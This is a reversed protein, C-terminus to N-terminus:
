KVTYRQSGGISDLIKQSVSSVESRFPFSLTHEEPSEILKVRGLLPCTSITLHIPFREQEQFAQLIGPHVHQRHGGHTFPCSLILIKGVHSCLHIVVLTQQEKPSLRVVNIIMTTLSRLSTFSGSCHEYLQETRRFARCTLLMFLVKSRPLSRQLRLQVIPWLHPSQPATGRQHHSIRNRSMPGCQTQRATWVM